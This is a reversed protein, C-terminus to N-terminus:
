ALGSACNSWRAPAMSPQDISVSASWNMSASSAIGHSGGDTLEIASSHDTHRSFSKGRDLVAGIQQHTAAIGALQVVILRQNQLRLDFGYHLQVVIVLHNLVKLGSDLNRGGEKLGMGQCHFPGPEKVRRYLNVAIYAQDISAAGLFRYGSQLSRRKLIFRHLLLGITAMASWRGSDSYLMMAGPAPAKRERVDMPRQSAPALAMARFGAWVGYRALGVGARVVISRSPLNYRMIYVFLSSSQLM